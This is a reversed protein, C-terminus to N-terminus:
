STIALGFFFILAGCVLGAAMGKNRFNASVVDGIEFISIYVLMGASAAMLSASLLSGALSLGLAGVVLGGMMPSAILSLLILSTELNNGSNSYAGGIVLGFPFSHLGSSLSFMIALRPNAMYAVYIAAGEVINHILFALSSIVGIHELATHSDRGLGHNHPLAWDMAKLLAIGALFSLAIHMLSGCSTFFVSALKYSEPLLETFALTLMTSFSLGFAFELRAGLTNSLHAALVGAFIFFGNLFCVLLARTDM